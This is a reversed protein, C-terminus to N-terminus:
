LPKDVVGLDVFARDNMVVYPREDFKLGGHGDHQIIELKGMGYGMPGRSYYHIQLKYPFARFKGPITFCEPGYGTTVDAYLEGGSSLTKAGYYAHGGQGDHIHFDVDNADTEWSLVFRLSPQTDRAASHARLRIEVYTQKSKDKAIWAEGILALDERLIRDVGAFRNEPYSRSLAADIAAFAGELEGLRLMAYALTRHSNPHDPRQLAAEAYSDAALGQGADSLGELLMGAYRRMDARSPFLDIISGYARAALLPRGSAKLADGLAVLALVDGEDESRWRLAEIVAQESKHGDILAKVQAMRGTLPVVKEEPRQRPEPEVTRPPITTIHRSPRIARPREGSSIREDSAAVRAAPAPAPRPRATSEPDARAESKAAARKAKVGLGGVGRLAKDADGGGIINAAGGGGKGSSGLIKLAGQAAVRDALARRKSGLKGEDGKHRAAHKRPTGPAISGDVLDDLDGRPPPPEVERERLEAMIIDKRQLVQVGDPGVALIDALAKRDIHFRQYDFETELVLLATFDSLVRHKTSLGIIEQKIADAKAPDRESLKDRQDVLRAIQAAVWARELLPRQTGALQVKVSQKIAGSLNVTLPEGPPLAEGPLDAYVLVEDGPQVGDLKSPWIWRAGKIDLEIGSLTTRALRQALTVVPQEGDLVVGDKPLTGRVLRRLLDEERIGGVALADAREFSQKLGRVARVLDGGETTGATAVGDTVLLLRKYGTRSAAWTIAALLNSAGLARRELIEQRHSEAFQSAQGEFIPSVVQDFCAVQLKTSPELKGVLEGLQAVQAAFGSARSASTDFLVLLSELPASDTTFSPRVRAMILNQHRLGAAPTGAGAASAAAAEKCGGATHVVFDRSPKARKLALEVSRGTRTAKEGEPLCVGGADRQGYILTVGLDAVEPLGRLPLRYVGNQSALEQSYSIKIEKDGSPPIPFIRASFENGAKKELLAPDQRRHLFDEYAEQAARREVVEAEQWGQPLKMALRSIAAGQPLTISFRGEIIRPQPNHFVLHLETLALPGEVGARASLRRLELGVGDSATLSLPPAEAEKDKRYFRAQKRVPESRFAAFSSEAAAAVPRAAAYAKHPKVEPPPTVASGSGTGTGPTVTSGTGSGTLPSVPKVADCGALGLCAGLLIGIRIFKRTGKDMM